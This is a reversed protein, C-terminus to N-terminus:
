FRGFRHVQLTELSPSIRFTSRSTRHRSFYPFLRHIRRCHPTSFTSDFPCTLAWTWKQKITEAEIRRHNLNTLRPIQYVSICRSNLFTKSVPKKSRRLTQNKFFIFAVRSPVLGVSVASMPNVPTAPTEAQVSSTDTWTTHRLLDAPLTACAGYFLPDTLGRFYPPTNMNTM